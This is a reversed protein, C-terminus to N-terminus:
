KIYDRYLHQARHIFNDVCDQCPCEAAGMYARLVNTLDEVFIMEKGLFTDDDLEELFGSINIGRRALAEKREKYKDLDM